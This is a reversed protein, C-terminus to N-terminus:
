FDGIGADQMLNLALSEAHDRGSGAEAEAQRPLYSKDSHMVFPISQAM